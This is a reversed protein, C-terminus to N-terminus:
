YHPDEYKRANGFSVKMGCPTRWGRKTKRVTYTRGDSNPIYDYVQNTFYDYGEKATATMEQIEVTKGSPTVRIVQFPYTDTFYCGTALTNVEITQIATTM